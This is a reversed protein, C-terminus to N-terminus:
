HKHSFYLEGYESDYITPEKLNNLYYSVNIGAQKGQINYGKQVYHAEDKLYGNMSLEAFKNGVLVVDPNTRGINTQAEIQISQSDPMNVLHGIRILFLKEIGYAKLTNIMNNLHNEYESQPMNADGEGQNWVVYYGRINLRSRSAFEKFKNLREITDNLYVSGSVWETISSGGKSASIGILKRNTLKHYEEAFSSVLSGTKMAGDNIGGVKNENKGFPEVLPTLDTPSTIAKYEYAVDSVDPAKEPHDATTIGRGAMNSQGMFLFVDHEERFDSIMGRDLEYIGDAQISTIIRNTSIQFRVLKPKEFRIQTNKYKEILNTSEWNKNEDFVALKTSLAIASPNDKWYIGDVYIYLNTFAPLYIYDTVEFQKDFPAWENTEGSYAGDFSSRDKDYLEAPKDTSYAHIVDKLAKSEIFNSGVKKTKTNKISINKDNNSFVIRVYCNRTAIFNDIDAIRKTEIHNFNSDAVVIKRTLDANDFTFVDVENINVLLSAGISLPIYNTVFFGQVDILEDTLERVAKNLSVLNKDFLEVLEESLLQSNILSTDITNTKMESFGVAGNAIGSAQYVGGSTWKKDISNWYYWNGDSTVVYVGNDGSPYKSELQALTEFPEPSIDGMSTVQNQLLEVLARLQEDNLKNQALQANVDQQEKDLRAKLNAEGNRAAILEPAAIVDKGTTNDIVQQFQDEIDAQRNGTKSIGEAINERMKKIYPENEIGTKLQNIRNRYQETTEAM